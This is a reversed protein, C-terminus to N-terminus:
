DATVPAQVPTAWVTRSREGGILDLGLWLTYAGGVPVEVAVEWPGAGKLEVEAVLGQEAVAFGSSAEGVRLMPAPGPGAKESALQDIRARVRRGPLAAPDTVSAVVRTGPYVWVVPGDAGEMPVSPELLSRLEAKASGKPLVVAQGIHLFGGETGEDRLGNRDPLPRLLQGGVELRLPSWPGYGRRELSPNSVTWLAFLQGEVLRERVVRLDKPPSLLPPTGVRSWRVAGTFAESILGEELSPAEAAADDPSGAKETGEGRETADAVGEGTPDESLAALVVLWAVDSPNSLSLVVGTARPPLAPDLRRRVYSRGGAASVMTEKLVANGGVELTLQLSSEGSAGIPDAAVELLSAGDLFTSLRADPVTFRASDGPYLWIAGRLPTTSKTNRRECLRSPDLDVTWAGTSPSGSEPSVYLVNGAHCARGGRLSAVETCSTHHLPLPKGDHLARLPSCKHASVARSTAADALARYASVPLMGIGRPLLRIPGDMVVEPPPAAFVPAVETDEVKGGVIRVSAGALAEPLGVLHVSFPARGLRLNQVLVFPGDAPVSLTLTWPGDPPLQPTAHASLRQGSARVEVPYGAVQVDLPREPGWATGKFLVDYAGAPYPWAGEFSLTLTSGPYIWWAEALDGPVPFSVEPALEVTPETPGAERPVVVRLRGAEWAMGPTCTSVDGPQNPILVNSVRVRLPSAGARIADGEGLVNLGPASVEWACAGLSRLELGALLDSAHPSRETRVPAIPQVEGQGARRGALGQTRLLAAVARTFLQAGEQSMHRMDRFYRDDLNLSRLDLYTAGVEEVVELAEQEVSPPVLDNEQNSPPFPTRVFVARGGHANVLEAIDPILSANAVDLGELSLEDVAGVYLGTGVGGHLEYAMKEDAFVVENARDALRAGADSTLKGRFVLGLAANRWAEMAQDRLDWAQGRLYLWRFLTPDDTGFVKAAIVPEDDTLNEILRDVSTDMLVEPTVMTTLAGVMLVLKPRHGRAFVRNKLVAYWHPATANPLTLLVVNRRAIGLGDALVAVDVNTRALSSGLVVVEVEDAQRLSRDMALTRGEAHEPQQLLSAAGAFVALPLLVALLGTVLSPRSWSM